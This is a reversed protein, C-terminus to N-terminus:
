RCDRITKTVGIDLRNKGWDEKKGLDVGTRTDEHILM